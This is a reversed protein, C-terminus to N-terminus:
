GLEVCLVDLQLTEYHCSLIKADGPLVEAARYLEILFRPARAEPRHVAQFMAELSALPLPPQPSFFRWIAALRTYAM